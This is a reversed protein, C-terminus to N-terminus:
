ICSMEPCSVLRDSIRADSEDTKTPVLQQGNHNLNYSKLRPASQLCSNTSGCPKQVLAKSGKTIPISKSSNSVTATNLTTKNSANSSNKNYKASNVQKSTLNVIDQVLVECDM